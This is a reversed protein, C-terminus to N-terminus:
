LSPFACGPKSAQESPFSMGSCSFETLLKDLLIEKLIEEFVHAPNPNEYIFTLSTTNQM